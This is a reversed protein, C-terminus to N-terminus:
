SWEDDEFPPQGFMPLQRRSWPNDHDYSMHYPDSSSEPHTGSSSEYSDYSDYYVSSALVSPSPSPSPSTDRIQWNRSLWEAFLWRDNDEIVMPPEDFPQMPSAVCLGVWLLM